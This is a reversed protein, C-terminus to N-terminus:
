LGESHRTTISQSPWVFDGCISILGSKKLTVHVRKFQERWNGAPNIISHRKLRDRWVDMTVVSAEAPIRDDGSRPTASDSICEFLVRLAEEAKTKTRRNNAHIPGEAGEGAVIATTISDGDEDRGLEFAELKFRAIVREPQDNGKVVQATKTIKGSIQVMVDVDGVHANSGRAGRREDRGTHGVLAVHVNLLAHVRRLNAAARNQDRAKDEDGGGAAIAKAYTDLIILGVERGFRQEAAKVTSVITEVCGPDILDIVSDVVVIPLGTLGDRQHYVYLRRKFLDGRELAFVVVGCSARARHGQWDIKAACHIAIETLLASKGAGPPAIWASTEGLAVIGKLLWQKNAFDGCDDFHTFKLARTNSLEFPLSADLESVAALSTEDSRRDSSALVASDILTVVAEQSLGHQAGMVHLYDVLQLRVNSQEGISALRLIETAARVFQRALVNRDTGALTRMWSQLVSKIELPLDNADMEVSIGPRDDNSPIQNFLIAEINSAAAGEAAGCCDSVDASEIMIPTAQDHHQPEFAPVDAPQESQIALRM